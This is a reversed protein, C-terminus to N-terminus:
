ILGLWRDTFGHFMNDIQYMYKVVRLRSGDVQRVIIWSDEESDWRVAFDLCKPHSFNSWVTGSAHGIHEEFGVKVLEEQTIMTWGEDELPYQRKLEKRM